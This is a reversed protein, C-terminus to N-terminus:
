DRSDGKKGEKKNRCNICICCWGWKGTLYKVRKYPSVHSHWKGCVSCVAGTLQSM